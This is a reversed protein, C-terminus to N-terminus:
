FVIKKKKPPPRPLQAPLITIILLLPEGPLKCLITCTAEEEALCKFKISDKNWSKSNKCVSSKMFNKQNLVQVFLYQYFLDLMQDFSPLFGLPAFLALDFPIGLLCIKVCMKM